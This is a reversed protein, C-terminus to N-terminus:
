HFEPESDFGYLAPRKGLLRSITYPFVLSMKVCIGNRQSYTNFRMGLTVKLCLKQPLCPSCKLWSSSLRGPDFVRGLKIIGDWDYKLPGMHLSFGESAATSLDREQYKEKSQRWIYSYPALIYDEYMVATLDDRESLLPVWATNPLTSVSRGQQRDVYQFHIWVSWVASSWITSLWSVWHDEWCQWHESIKKYATYWLHPSSLSECYSISSDIVEIVPKLVHSKLALM